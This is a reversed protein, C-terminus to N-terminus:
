ADESDDRDSWSMEPMPPIHQMSAGGLVVEAGPEACTALAPWETADDVIVPRSYRVGPLPWTRRSTGDQSRRQDEVAVMASALDSFFEASTTKSHPVKSTFGPSRIIESLFVAACFMSSPPTLLIREALPCRQSESRGHVDVFFDAAFWWHRDAFGNTEFSGDNRTAAFATALSRDIFCRVAALPNPHNPFYKRLVPDLAAFDVSGIEESPYRPRREAIAFNPQMTEPRTIDRYRDDQSSVVVYGEHVMVTPSASSVLGALTRIKFLRWEEEGSTLNVPMKLGDIYATARWKFLNGLEPELVRLDTNEAGPEGALVRVIARIDCRIDRLLGVNWVLIKTKSEMNRFHLPMPLPAMPDTATADERCVDDDSLQAVGAATATEELFDHRGSTESLDYMEAMPQFMTPDFELTTGHGTDWVGARTNDAVIKGRLTRMAQELANRDNIGGAETNWRPWNIIRQEKRMFQELLAETTNDMVKSFVIDASCLDDVLHFLGSAKFKAAAWVGPAYKVDVVFLCRGDVFPCGYGKEGADGYVTVPSGKCPRMTRPLGLAELRDESVVSCARNLCAGYSPDNGFGWPAPGRPFPALEDDENTLKPIHSTFPEGFPQLAGPVRCSHM